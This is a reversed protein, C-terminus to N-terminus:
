FFREYSHHNKVDYVLVAADADRYYMPTMSRYREEGGTDWIHIKVSRLPLILLISDM